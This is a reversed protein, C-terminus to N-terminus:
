AERRDAELLRMVVPTLLRAVLAHGADGPHLWDPLLFERPNPADHYAQNLDVLPVHEAAAVERLATNYGDLWLRNFGEPDTPDYPPRGYRERVIPGWYVRNTTMLVVASGHRRVAHVLQRLNAVYDERAVRPVTVPPDQWVDVASDNIGFQMVVLRPNVALVDRELRALADRTTNGGVGRNLVVHPWGVRQLEDQVREAYTVSVLGPREVTTSDGFMVIVPPAERKAEM